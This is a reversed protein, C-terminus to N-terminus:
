IIYTNKQKVLRDRYSAIYISLNTELIANLSIIKEEYTIGLIDLIEKELEYPADNRSSKLYFFEHLIYGLTEKSRAMKYYEVLITRKWRKWFDNSEELISQTTEYSTRWIEFNTSIGYM